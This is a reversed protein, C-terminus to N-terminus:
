EEKKASHEELLISLRVLWDDMFGKYDTLSDSISNAARNMDEAASKITNGASRVDEAGLLWTNSM